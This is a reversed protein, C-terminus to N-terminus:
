EIIVTSCLKQEDSLHTIVHRATPSIDAPLADIAFWAVASHKDPENNVPEGHWEHTVFYFGLTDGSARYVHLIHMLHLSQPDITIALEEHAERVAADVISENREISGGPVAWLNDHSGTNTRHLLLISNNKRLM